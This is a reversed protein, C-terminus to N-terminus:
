RVLKHRYMNMHFLSQLLVRTLLPTSQMHVTNYHLNVPVFSILKKHHSEVTHFYCQSLKVLKLLICNLHIFITHFHMYATNIEQLHCPYCHSNIIELLWCFSVKNYIYGTFIAKFKDIVVIVQFSITYYHISHLFPVNNINM